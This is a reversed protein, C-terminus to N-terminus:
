KAYGYISIRGTMNGASPTLVLSDYVQSVSSCGGFVGMRLQGGQTGTIRAANSGSPDVNMEMAIFSDEQATNALTGIVLNSVNNSNTFTFTSVNSAALALNGVYASAQTTAGYRLQLQLNPTSGGFM